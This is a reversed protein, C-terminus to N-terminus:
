NWLDFTIGKIKGSALDNYIRNSVRDYDTEGRVTAGMAKGIIDFMEYIDITSDVKYKEELIKPYAKQYVSLIYYAIDNIDLIDSKIATMAALNYAVIEEEFKPWLIGPTDLLLLNFRTKLWNIQKTVGPKNGTGAVVKGALNNILTSKGVNPAGVVLVKIEKEKLGKELRKNQADRMLRDTLSYLEKYDKNNTMDMLLVNIGKEEYYKVWKNTAPVDCLDKKTMILIRKKTRVIDEIDVIKSSMPVRADIVEYIVDILKINEKIQRKTKAMHGPYWHIQKGKVEKEETQEKEKRMKRKQHMDM